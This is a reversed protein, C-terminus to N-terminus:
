MSMRQRLKMEEKHSPISSMDTGDFHITGSTPKYLGVVMNAITSKGCGSEGVLAFTEGPNVSFDVGNVATLFQRPLREILRNLLPKSVEFKQKLGTAKLLPQISTKANM